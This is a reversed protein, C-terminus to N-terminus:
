KTFHRRWRRRGPHADLAEDLFRCVAGLACQREAETSKTTKLEGGQLYEGNPAMVMLAQLSEQEGWGRYAQRFGPYIAALSDLLRERQTSAQGCNVFLHTQDEVEAVGRRDLCGQCYPHDAFHDGVNKGVANLCHGNTWMHVLDAFGRQYKGTYQRHRLFGPKFM